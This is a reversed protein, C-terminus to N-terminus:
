AFMLRRLHPSGHSMGFYANVKLFVEDKDISAMSSVYFGCEMGTLIEIFFDRVARHYDEKSSELGWFSFYLGSM